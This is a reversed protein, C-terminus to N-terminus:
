KKMREILRFAERGVAQTEEDAEPNAADPWIANRKDRFTPGFNGPGDHSADHASAKVEADKEKGAEGRIEVDGGFGPAPDEGDAGGRGHKSDGNEPKDRFRGSPEGGAIAATLVRILVLSGCRREGFKEPRRQEAGDQDADGEAGNREDAGPGRAFPYERPSFQDRTFLVGVVFGSGLSPPGDAGDEATKKAGLEGADDAPTERVEEDAKAAGSDGATQEQEGFRHM